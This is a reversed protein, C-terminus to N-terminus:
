VFGKERGDYTVYRVRVYWVTACCAAFLVNATKKEEPIGEMEMTFVLPTVRRVGKEGRASRRLVRPRRRRAVGRGGGEGFDERIEGQFSRRSM